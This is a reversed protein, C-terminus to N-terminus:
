LPCNASSPPTMLTGTKNNSCLVLYEDTKELYTWLVFITADATGGGGGNSLYMYVNEPAVGYRPDEKCSCNQTCLLLDGCLGTETSARVPATHSPYLGSNKDAFLELATKYQLLDNARLRDRATSEPGIFRLLVISSLVLLVAMAVLLEFLTFGRRIVKM